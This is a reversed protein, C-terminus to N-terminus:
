RPAGTHRLGGIQKAPVRNRRTRWQPLIATSADQRLSSAIRRAAAAVKARIHQRATGNPAVKNASMVMADAAAFRMVAAFLCRYEIKLRISAITSASQGAGAGATILTLGSM